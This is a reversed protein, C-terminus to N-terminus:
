DASKGVVKLVVPPLDVAERDEKVAPKGYARDLLANAALRWPGHYSRPDIFFLRNFSGNPLKTPGALNSSAVEVMDIYVPACVYV